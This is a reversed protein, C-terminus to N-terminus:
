NEEKETIYKLLLKSEKGETLTAKFLHWLQETTKKYLGMIPVKKCWSSFKDTFILYALLTDLVLSGKYIRYEVTQDNSINIAGRNAKLIGSVVKKYVLKCGQGGEQELLYFNCYNNDHRQAIRELYPKLRIFATILKTVAVPGLDGNSRHIHAGCTGADYSTGGNRKVIKIVDKLNGAYEMWSKLTRPHFVIEIGNDLSGDEKLYYNEEKRDNEALDDCARVRDNYNDTELELGYYPGHEGGYFHFYPRYNYDHMREPPLEEACSQCYYADNLYVMNDTYGVCGCNACSSGHDEYCDRCLTVEESDLYVSEDSHLTRKDCEDCQECHYFYNSLCL